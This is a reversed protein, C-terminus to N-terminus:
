PETSQYGPFGGDSFDGDLGLTSDEVSTVPEITPAVWQKRSM